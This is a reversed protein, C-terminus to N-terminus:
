AEKRGSPGRGWRPPILGVARWKWDARGAAARQARQERRDGYIGGYIDACLDESGHLDSRSADTVSRVQKTTCCISERRGLLKSSYFAIFGGVMPFARV